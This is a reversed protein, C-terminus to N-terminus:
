NFNFSIQGKSGEGPGWPAPGFFTSKAHGMWTPLECVLNPKIEDLPKPHSLTVPPCVSPRLRYCYGRRKKLFAHPYYVDGVLALLDARRWCTAVLCCHVSGLLHGCPLLSCVRFCSFCLVCFFVFRGCFFYRRPVTLFFNSSPKLVPVLRVRLKSTMNTQFNAPNQRFIM